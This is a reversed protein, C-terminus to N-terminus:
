IEVPSFTEFFFWVTDWELVLVLSWPHHMKSVHPIIGKEQYPEFTVFTMLLFTRDWQNVFSFVVIAAAETHLAM